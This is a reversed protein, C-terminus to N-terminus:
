AGRCQINDPDVGSIREYSFLELFSVKPFNITLM